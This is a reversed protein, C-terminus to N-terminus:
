MRSLAARARAQVEGGTLSAVMDAIAAEIEAAGVELMLAKIQSVFGPALPSRAAARSRFHDVAAAEELVADVLGIRMCHDAPLVAPDMLMHRARAHGVVHGLRRLTFLDPVIGLRAFPLLFRTSPTAVRADCALAVEAAGGITHGHLLAWTPLPCRALNLLTGAVMHCYARAAPLNETAALVESLDAGAGFDPGEGRLVIAQVNPTACLTQLASSIGHWMAATLANRKTPNCLTILGLPGLATHTVSPM